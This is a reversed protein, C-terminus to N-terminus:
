LQVATGASPAVYNISHGDSGVVPVYGPTTGNTPLPAYTAMNAAADTAAQQAILAQVGALNLTLVTWKTADYSSTSTHATSTQVFQESPNLVVAGVAYVTDPAWSEVADLVRFTLGDILTLIQGFTADWNRASSATNGLSAPDVDPLDQYLISAQDPVLVTREQLVPGPGAVPTIAPQIFPNVPPFVLQRISLRWKWSATTPPLQLLDAATNITFTLTSPLVVVSGDERIGTPTAEVIVPQDTLDTGDPLDRRPDFLIRTVM